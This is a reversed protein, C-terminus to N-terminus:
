NEPRAKSRFVSIARGFSREGSNDTASVQDTRARSSDLVLLFVFTLASLPRKVYLLSWRWREVDLAGCFEFSESILRNAAVSGQCEGILNRVM